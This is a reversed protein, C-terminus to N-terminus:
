AKVVSLRYQGSGPAGLKVHLYYWGASSARYALYEDPGPRESLRVRQDQQSLDDVAITGPRWLALAPDTGPAGALSAFLRQGRGVFVRYVDNRDDWYDYTAEVVRKSGWLTFSRTGADDNPEHSDAPPLPL